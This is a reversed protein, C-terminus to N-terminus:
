FAFRRGAGLPPPFRRGGLPKSKSPRSPERPVHARHGVRIHRRAREPRSADWDPGSARGGGHGPDGVQLAGKRYFALVRGTGAARLTVLGKLSDVIVDDFGARRYRKSDSGALTGAPDELYVELNEVGTDPLYFFRGRIYSDLPIREEELENKGVFVKGNVGTADWRLLLENLSSGAALRAFAGLSNAAQSPTQLFASPEQEIGKTGIALRRLMESSDGQYGFLISNDAFSGLASVELFYKEMMRLSITVDPTMLPIFGLDLSPFSDQIQVPLGPAFLLSKGFSLAATWSGLISLDVDADGIKASFIETPAEAQPLVLEGAPLVRAALLLLIISAELALRFRAMRMFLRGQRRPANNVSEAPASPANGVNM